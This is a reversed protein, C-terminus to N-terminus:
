PAEGRITDTPTARTNWAAIVVERSDSSTKSPCRWDDCQVSYPVGSDEGGRWYKVSAPGGCFPCPAILDDM